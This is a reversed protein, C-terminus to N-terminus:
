DEQIQDAAHRRCLYHWLRALQAAAPGDARAFPAAAAADFPQPTGAASAALTAAANQELLWARTVAERVTRGATAAGFGRLLVAPTDGAVAALAHGQELTTVTTDTDFVPVSAGAFMGMGLTAPLPRNLTGWALTAPGHFRAVSMYGPNAALLGLHIPLEGAKLAARDDLVNGEADVTVVDGATRVLGPGQNGSLLITGDDMRATLHGFASTLREGDLIACGALLDRLADERNM